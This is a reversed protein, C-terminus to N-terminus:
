EVTGRCDRAIVDLVEDWRLPRVHVSGDANIRDSIWDKPDPQDELPPGSAWARRLAELMLNSM